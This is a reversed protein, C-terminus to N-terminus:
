QKSKLREKTLGSIMASIGSRKLKKMYGLLFRAGAFCYKIKKVQSTLSKPQHRLKRKKELKLSNLKNYNKNTHNNWVYEMWSSVFKSM